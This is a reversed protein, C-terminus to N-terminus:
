HSPHRIPAVRAVYCAIANGTSSSATIEKLAAAVESAHRETPGDWASLKLAEPLEPTFAEENFAAIAERESEDYGAWKAVLLGALPGLVHDFPTTTRGRVGSTTERQLIALLAGRARAATADVHGFSGDCGSSGRAM